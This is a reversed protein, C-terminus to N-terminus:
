CQSYSQFYMSATFGLATWYITKINSEHTGAKVQKIEQRWIPQAVMVLACDGGAGHCQARKLCYLGSTFQEAGEM